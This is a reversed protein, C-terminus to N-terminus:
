LLIKSTIHIKNCKIVYCVKLLSFFMCPLMSVTLIKSIKLCDKGLYAVCRASAYTFCESSEKFNTPTSVTSKLASMLVKYIFIKRHVPKSKM